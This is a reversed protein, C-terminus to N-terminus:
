PVNKAIQRPMLVTVGNSRETAFTFVRFRDHLEELSQRVGPCSVSDHLVFYGGPSIRPAYALIEDRTEPYLHSTDLFLLDIQAPLQALVAADLSGGCVFQVDSALGLRSLNEEARTLVDRHLEVCWLRGGGGGARLARAFCASTWGVYCGLEVVTKARARYALNALFRSVSPEANFYAPAGPPLFEREEGLAVSFDPIAESTGFLTEAFEFPEASGRVDAYMLGYERAMAVVDTYVFRRTLANRLLRLRPALNDQFFSM